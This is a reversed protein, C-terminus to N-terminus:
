CQDVLQKASRSEPQETCADNTELSYCNFVIVVYSDVNGSEPTFESKKLAM